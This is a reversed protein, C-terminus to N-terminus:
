KKTDILPRQPSALIHSFTDYRQNYNTCHIGVAQKGMDDYPTYKFGEDKMITTAAATSVPNLTSAIKNIVESAQPGADSFMDTFANMLNIEGVGTGQEARKAAAAEPTVTERLKGTGKLKDLQEKELEQILNM